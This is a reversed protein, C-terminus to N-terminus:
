KLPHIRDSSPPKGRHELFAREFFVARVPHCHPPEDLDGFTWAGRGIDTSVLLFGHPARPDVVYRKLMCREDHGGDNYIAVVLNGDHPEEDPHFAVLQGPFVLPYASTGEVRVVVLDPDLHLDSAETPQQEHLIGVEEGDGAHVVGVYSLKPADAQYAPKHDQVRNSMPGYGAALWSSNVELVESLRMLNQPKKTAGTEIAGVTAPRIGAIEALQVQTWGKAM